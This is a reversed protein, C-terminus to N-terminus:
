AYPLIISFIIGATKGNQVDVRGDHLEVIKKVYTLGLGFGKVDHINGTPVRFFKDFVASRYQDPIGMGTDEVAIVLYEYHNSTRITLEPAHPSYKIANDILKCLVNALQTQDGSLVHQEAELNLSIRGQQHELQVSMCSVTENILDHMDLTTKNLRIEGRELASMSLVKEVRLRLKESESLIINLKESGAQKEMMKGALRINALPTKFEHAMNNLFDTTQLAIEKEKILSLGTQWFLILVVLILAVSAFFLPGMEAIIYQRKEPLLLKLEIRSGGNQEELKKQYMYGTLGDTNQIVFSTPKSVVFSYNLVLNYAKMYHKFLSDIQRIEQKGIVAGGVKTEGEDLCAKIQGCAVQDSALVESAKALVMNAKENFLQEKMRASQVIWNVQILLLIILAGSSILIFRNARIQKM